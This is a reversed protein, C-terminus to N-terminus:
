RAVVHLSVTSLLGHTMGDLRAHCSPGLDITAITNAPFSLKFEIKPINLVSVNEYVSDNQEFRDQENNPAFVNVFAFQNAAAFKHSLVFLYPGFLEIATQIRNTLNM